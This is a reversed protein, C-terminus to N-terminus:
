WQSQAGDIVQEVLREIAQRRGSAEAREPYEGEARLGKRQWLAQGTGQDVIEIDVTVQLRRRASLSQTRDASFAVPVDTDYTRLVGRVLADARDPSADRLGFRRRMERRLEELLEQPLEASTTENEFPEIAITRIHQPFGGQSMGYRVGCAALALLMAALALNRLGSRM